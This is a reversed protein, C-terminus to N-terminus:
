VASLCYIFAIKYVHWHLSAYEVKIRFLLNEFIAYMWCYNWFINLTSLFPFYHLSLWLEGLTSQFLKEINTDSNWQQTLLDIKKKFRKGIVFSTKKLM